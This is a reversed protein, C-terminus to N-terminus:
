VIGPDVLINAANGPVTRNMGRVTSRSETRAVASGLLAESKLM